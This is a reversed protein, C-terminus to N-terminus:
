GVSSGVLYVVQMLRNVPPNSTRTWGSSGVRKFDVVQVCSNARAVVRDFFQHDARNQEPFDSSRSTQSALKKQRTLIEVRYECNVAARQGSNSARCAGFRSPQAHAHFRRQRNGMPCNMPTSQSRWLQPLDEAFIRQLEPNVAHAAVGMSVLARLTTELDDGRHEILASRVAGRQEAGHRRRLEAIIANNSPFYQYLSAINVGAREAIRNTTLRVRDVAARQLVDM